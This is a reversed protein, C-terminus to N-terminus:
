PVYRILCNSFDIDTARLEPRTPGYTYGPHRGNAEWTYEADPVCLTDGVIQYLSYRPTLTQSLPIAQTSDLETAQTGSDTTVAEGVTYTRAYLDKVEIPNTSKCVNSGLHSATSDTVTGDASFSVMQQGYISNVSDTEICPTVWCGVIGDGPDCALTFGSKPVSTEAAPETNEVIDTGNGGTDTGGGGGGCATLIITLLFINLINSLVKM